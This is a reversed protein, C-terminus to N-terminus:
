HARTRLEIHDLEDRGLLVRLHVALTRTATRSTPGVNDWLPQAHRPACVALGGPVVPLIVVVVLLALALAFILRLCTAAFSRVGKSVPHGITGHM